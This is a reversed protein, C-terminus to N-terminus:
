IYIQLTKESDGLLQTVGRMDCWKSTVKQQPKQGASLVDNVGQRFGAGAVQEPVSKWCTNFWKRM